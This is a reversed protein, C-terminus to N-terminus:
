TEMLLHMYELEMTIWIPSTLGQCQQSRKRLGQEAELREWRNKSNQSSISELKSSDLNAQLESEKPSSKNNNKSEYINVRLMLDEEVTKFIPSKPKSIM